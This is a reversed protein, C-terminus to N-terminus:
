VPSAHDLIQRWNGDPGRHLIGTQRGETEHQTGDALTVRARFVGHGFAYDGVARCLLPADDEYDVAAFASFMEKVKAVIATRGVVTFGAVPQAYIADNEYLDGIADADKAQYAASYLASFEEVTRAM